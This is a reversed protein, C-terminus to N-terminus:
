EVANRDYEGFTGVYYSFQFVQKMGCAYACNNLYALAVDQPSQDVLCRMTAHIHDALLGVRSLQHRHKVAVREITRSLKSLVEERIEMWRGDNVVVVHLNYWYEGHASFSPTSLDVVPDSKQFHALRQQVRPDAMQHHDLQSAVYEEVTSRKAAGVSRVCYNRRFAKPLQKRILHQLRGKVSRIMESPSVRPKTTVFFQSADGTTFRHKIVRVGDPEVVQQLDSLWTGDSIPQTRWFLTLGWNLQYAPKTNAPTYLPEM